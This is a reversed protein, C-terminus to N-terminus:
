GTRSTTVSLDDSERHQREGGGVCQTIEVVHISSPTCSTPSSIALIPEDPPFTERPMMGCPDQLLAYPFLGLLVLFTVVQAGTSTQKRRM